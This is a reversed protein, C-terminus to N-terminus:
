GNGGMGGMGGMGGSSSGGGGGENRMRDVLSGGFDRLTEVGATVATAAQQVVEQTVRKM